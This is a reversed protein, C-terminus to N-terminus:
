FSVYKIFINRAGNVDRDIKIGCHGCSYTKDGKIKKLTGCCSCTQSTYSENVDHVRFNKYEKAKELLRMKFRYHSLQLMDHKTKRSLHKGKVMEQSEFTPLLVDNYNKILYNATKWHCETVLNKIRKRLIFLRRRTKTSQTKNKRTFLSQMLKIKESLKEYKSVNIHAEFYEEESYGTQFTRKGPDLAVVKHQEECATKVNVKKPILLWYDKGDFILRSDMDICSPIKYKKGHRKAIRMDGKLFTKYIQIRGDRIKISSKPVSISQTKKQKKSKYKMRFRLIKKQAVKKKNTKFQTTFEKVAGARIEKPTKFEWDNLVPGGNEKKTVFLNRMIYFNSSHHIDFLLNLDNSSYPSKSYELSRNYVFRCTGFWENIIKKQSENPYIKLKHNKVVTDGKDWKAAASCMSSPLSTKLSNTKGPNTYKTISSAYQVVEKGCSGNSSNLPSVPSDTKTPLWLKESTEKCLPNWFPVCGKAHSISELVLMRLLLTNLISQDFISPNDILTMKKDEPLSEVTVFTKGKMQIELLVSQKNLIPEAIYEQIGLLEHAKLLARRKGDELFRLHSVTFKLRQNSLLSSVKM